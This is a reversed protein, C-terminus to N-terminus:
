LQPTVGQLAHDVLDTDVLLKYTPAIAILGAQVYFHNEGTIGLIIQHIIKHAHHGAHCRTDIAPAIAAASDLLDFRTNLLM